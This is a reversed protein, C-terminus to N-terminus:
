AVTTAALVHAPLGAARRHLTSASSPVLRDCPGSARLGATPFPPSDGVSTRLVPRLPHPRARLGSAWHARRRSASAVRLPCPCAARRRARVPHSGAPGAPPPLALLPPACSARASLPPPRAAVARSSALRWAPPAPPPRPRPPPAPAPPLAGGCRRVHGAVPLAWGGARPPCDSTATPLRLLALVRDPGRRGAGPRPGVACRHVLGQVGRSSVASSAAFQRPSLKLGHARRPPAHRHPPPQAGGVNVLDSGRGYLSPRSPGTSVDSASWRRSGVTRLAAPAPAWRGPRRPAPRPTGGPRGPRPPPRGEAALPEPAMGPYSVVRSTRAM